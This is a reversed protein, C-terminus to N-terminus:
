ARMETGVATRHRKLGHGTKRAQCIMSGVGNPTSGIREAIQIYSLGEARLEMAMQAKTIRGKRFLIMSHLAHLADVVCARDADSLKEGGVSLDNTAIRIALQRATSDYDSM